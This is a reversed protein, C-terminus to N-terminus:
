SEIDDKDVKEYENKTGDWVWWQGDTDVWVKQKVGNVIAEMGEVATLKKGDVNNPQYGNSFVKDRDVRGDEGKADPNITNTYPNIGFQYTYKKGDKYFTSVGDSDTGAYEYRSFTTEDTNEDDDGPADEVTVEDGTKDKDEGYFDVMQAAMSLKDYMSDTESDYRDYAAQWLEPIKDSLEDMYKGYVQQGATQAYSNGYGGTLAASKGVTDRMAMEGARSYAGAYSKYLEDKEPDYEFDKRDYISQAAELLKQEWDKRNAEREADEKADPDLETETETETEAKDEEADPVTPVDGEDPDSIDGDVSTIGAASKDSNLSNSASNKISEMLEDSLPISWGAGGTPASGGEGNGVDGNNKFKDKYLEYLAKGDIIM